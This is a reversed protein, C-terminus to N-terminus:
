PFRKYSLVEYEEDLHNYKEIRDLEKDFYTYVIKNQLMNDHSYILEEIIEQRNNFRIVKRYQILGVNNTVREQLINNTFIEFYTIETLANNVYRLKRYIDKTGSYYELSDIWDISNDSLFVESKLLGGEYFYKHETKLNGSVLERELDGLDNYELKKESLLQGKSNRLVTSSLLGKDNYFFRKVGKISGNDGRTTITSLFDLSLDYEYENVGSYVGFLYQYEKCVQGEYGVGECSPLQDVECSM